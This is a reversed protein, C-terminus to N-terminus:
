DALLNPRTWGRFKPVSKLVGMEVLVESAVQAQGFLMADSMAVRQDALDLWKFNALVPAVKERDEGLREVILDILGEPNAKCWAVAEFYATFLRRARAEDADVWSKSACLMDPGTMTKFRKYISTDEDTGLVVAGPLARLHSYFPEWIIGAQAEGSRVLDVVAMDEGNLIEVDKGIELGAGKLLEYATIHVSSNLDVAIKKGRLGEISDIGIAVLGEAGPAIDQNGIWYFGDRGEAMAGLMAVEGLSAFQANGTELATVRDSSGGLAKAVVEFGAREFIGQEIGVWVPAHGFWNSGAYDVTELGSDGGGGTPEVPADKPGCAGVGCALLTILALSTALANTRM